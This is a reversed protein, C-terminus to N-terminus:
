RFFDRTSLKLIDKFKRWGMWEREAYNWHDAPAAPASPLPLLLPVMAVCLFKQKQNFPRWIISKVLFVKKVKETARTKKISSKFLTVDHCQRGTQRWFDRCSMYFTCKQMCWQNGTYLILIVSTLKQIRGCFCIFNSEGM